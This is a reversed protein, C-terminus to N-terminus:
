CAPGVRGPAPHAIMDRETDIPETLDISGICQEHPIGIALALAAHACLQGSWPGDIRVKLGASVCMDRAVRAASVGGLKAPKICVVDLGDRIARAFISLDALCMDLMMPSSLSPAVALNDEYSLCPDEWMLRSDAIGPLVSLATDVSLAGNFDALVLQHSELASLVERVCAVDVDIADVGLKIQIVPSVGGDARISAVTDEVSGASLSLIEPVDGSAPGGLLSALPLGTQQSLLDHWASDLAFSIGRTPLGRQRWLNLLGPIDSLCVGELEALARMEAREYDDRGVSSFRAVEGRATVGSDTTITLLSHHIVSQELTSMVYTKGDSFRPEFPSLEAHAIKMHQLEGLAHTFPGM